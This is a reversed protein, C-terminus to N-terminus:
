RFLYVGVLIALFGTYNLFDFPVSFLEVPPFLSCIKCSMWTALLLLYYYKKKKPKFHQDKHNKPMLTSYITNPYNSFKSYQFTLLTFALTLPLIYFINNFKQVVKFHNDDIKITKNLQRNLFNIQYTKKDEPLEVAENNIYITPTDQHDTLINLKTSVVINLKDIKKSNKKELPNELYINSKYYYYEM